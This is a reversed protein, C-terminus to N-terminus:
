PTGASPTPTPGAPALTGAPLGAFAGFKGAVPNRPRLTAPDLMPAEDVTTTGQVVGFPAGLVSWADPLEASHFLNDGLTIATPPVRDPHPSFARLAGPTWSVLLRDISVDSVIGADPDVSWVAATPENVTSRAFALERVNAMAIATGVGDFICREVRTREVPWADRGPSGVAIATGTGANFAAGTVLVEASRGRVRVGHANRLGQTPAAMLGRVIVRRADDLEIASDDWGDVRLADLTVDVCARVRVADQEGTGRTGTFTCNRIVIDARWLDGPAQGAPGGGDVLMGADGPNLFSMNEIILNGCRELHWGYGACGVAGPFADRGRLVIPKEKTGRLGTVKQALHFGPAFVIEDGPAVDELLHSWVQGPQVLFQRAGASYPQPMRGTPNPSGSRAGPAPVLPPPVAMRQLSPPTAAPANASTPAASPPTPGAPGQAVLTAAMALASAPVIM